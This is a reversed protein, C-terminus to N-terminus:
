ATLRRRFLLLGALLLLVAGLAEPLRGGGTKPLTSAPAPASSAPAPAATTTTAPPAPTTGAALPVAPAAAVAPTAAFWIGLFGQGNTQGPAKDGSFDYLPWGNYTVQYTGAAAPILSVNGTVGPALTLASPGSVTLAPWILACRGTCNNMGASDRMFHYLTHGNPGVLIPGLTANDAISLTPGGPAAPATPTVAAPSAATPAAALNVTAVHWLGLLGQGNTQGPASDAAYYYLPWGNYTVQVSGHARTLTGLTGSLGAGATPAGSSTLAPWIASCVGTCNSVGATDKDFYYLTHGNPGVLISGLTANQAVSVTGAAQAAAGAVPMLLSLGGLAAGLAVAFLAYLSRRWWRRM